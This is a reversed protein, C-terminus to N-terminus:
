ALFEKCSVLMEHHLAVKNIQDINEIGTVLQAILELLSEDRIACQWITGVAQIQRDFQVELIYKASIKQRQEVLRDLDVGHTLVSFHAQATQM